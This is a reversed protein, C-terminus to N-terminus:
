DIAKPQMSERELWGRKEFDDLIDKTTENMSRLKLGFIKQEKSTDMLDRYVDTTSKIGQNALKTQIANSPTVTNASELWEKWVFPGEAVIIREGGAKENELALVHAQAVDRVDVWSSGKSVPLSKSITPADKSAVVDWWLAMSANLSTPSSINQLTPGFVYPPNIVTLDWKVEKKHKAYFDWAAREALTKSAQYKTLVATDRGKEKVEKLSGENWDKESFTKPHPLTETIAAISSTIVIRKVDHGNKLASNLIGLTGNVAPDIYDKPDEGEMHCPSLLHEIGAVDKVADDFAGEKMVDSVVVIELKDGYSKFTNM